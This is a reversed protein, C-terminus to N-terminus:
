KGNKLGTTIKVGTRLGSWALVSYFAEEPIDPFVTKVIAFVLTVWFETTKWSPKDFTPDALGFFKQTSRAAVWGGIAIVAEKPISPIIAAAATVLIGIWFEVTKIGDKVVLNSM